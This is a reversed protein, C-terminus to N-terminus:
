AVVESQANEEAEGLSLHLHREFTCTLLKANVVEILIPQDATFSPKSAKGCRRQIWDERGPSGGGFILGATM